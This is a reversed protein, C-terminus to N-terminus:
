KFDASVPTAKGSEATCLSVNNNDARTVLQVARCTGKGYEIRKRVTDTHCHENLVPNLVYVCVLLPDDHAASLLKPDIANRFAREEGLM